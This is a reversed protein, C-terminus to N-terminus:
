DLLWENTCGPCRRRREANRSRGGWRYFYYYAPIGTLAQIRNCIELGTKSLSSRIDSIQRTAARELTRCNLQLGDCAQYDSQWCIMDHYEDQYTPAIRYLPIPLFCCGCRLPPELSYAHTYLIYTDPRLCQCVGSGDVDKGALISEPQELGASGLNELAKRVYRNHHISDLAGAEPLLVTAMCGTETIAIPWERGCVQGNMRLVALLGSITHSCADCDLSSRARFCLQAVYM